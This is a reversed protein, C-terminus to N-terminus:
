LFTVNWDVFTVETPHAVTLAPPGNSVILFEGAGEFSITVGDPVAISTRSAAGTHFRVPCDVILTFANNAASLLAQELQGSEDISESCSVWARISKTVAPKTVAATGGTINVYASTRTGLITGTGATLRVAFRKTGTFPKTDLIPIKFTKSARDGSAWKLTGTEATFQAGAIATENLTKYSVSLAGVAGGIRQATLTISGGTEAVSYTSASLSVGGNVVTSAASATSSSTPPSSVVLALQASLTLTLVFFFRHQKFLALGEFKQTIVIPCPV